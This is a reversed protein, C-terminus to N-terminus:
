AMNDHKGWGREQATKTDHCSKCMAQHNDKTWFLAYDGMHDKIHDVVTAANHCTEYNICLPHRGLYWKRYKRWRTSSYLKQFEPNKRRYDAKHLPKHINCYPIGVTVLRPCGTHSCPKLAKHSM